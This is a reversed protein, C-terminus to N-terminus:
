VDGVACRCNDVIAYARATTPRTYFTHRVHWAEMFGHCCFLITAASINLKWIHWIKACCILLFFVIHFENESCHANACCILLFSRIHSEHESSHSSWWASFAVGNCILIYCLTLANGEVAIFILFHGFGHIPLYDMSDPYLLFIVSKALMAIHHLLWFHVSSENLLVMCSPCTRETFPCRM